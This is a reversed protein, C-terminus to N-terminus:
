SRAKTDPQSQPLHATELGALGVKVETRMVGLATSLEDSAIQIISRMDSAALMKRSIEAIFQEREARRETQELLRANDIAVAIESAVAELLARDNASWARDPNLDHLKLAGIPEGRVVIPTDLRAPTASDFGPATDQVTLTGGLPTTYTRWAEGTLRRNVVDLQKLAAQMEALSRRNQIVVAAQNSLTVLTQIYDADFARAHQYGIILLGLVNQDVTLALAIMAESNFRHMLMRLEPSVDDANVSPVILPRARTVASVVPLQEPTFRSGPRVAQTLTAYDPHVWTATLEFYTPHGTEDLPGNLAITARSADPTIHDILGQLIDPTNIATSVAQSAAFLNRTNQLTKETQQFQNANSIAIALQDAMTQLVAANAEDFAAVQKSQVDLAGWVRDGVMLPLAIESRIDPLFPNAVRQTESNTDLAISARRTKIATGVMSLTNVELRHQREKLTRGANGTAERLEAWQQSSDLTFVAAYDFGFRAAILNTSTRLLDAMDLSSAAARGVEASAELQRTRDAVRQELSGISDRLQNTLANLTDGLQSFEDNTDVQARIKLDGELQSRAVQTLHRLPTLVSSNTTVWTLAFALLALGLALAIVTAESQRFEALVVTRSSIVEIAGVIRDPYVQIPAVLVMWAQDDNSVIQSEIRGTAMVREYISADVAPVKAANSVYFFLSALPAAPADAAPQLGAAAVAEYSLWLRYDTNTRNHLTDIFAQDYDLGVEILGILDSGDLLPAVSRVGLRNPGIELGAVAQKTSIAQAVTRRYTVDDGFQEPSHVRLFVTGDPAELYLHVINAQDKLTAFLPALLDLLGARDRNKFLAKVDARDAISTALATAAIENETIATRYDEYIQVLRRRESLQSQQASNDLSIWAQTGVTIVIILIVVGLLKTQVSVRHRRPNALNVLRSLHRISLTGSQSVALVVGATLAFQILAFATTAGVIPRLLTQSMAGLAELVLLILLSARRPRLDPQRLLY